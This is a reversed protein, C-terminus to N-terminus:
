AHMATVLPVDHLCVQYDSDFSDDMLPVPWKDNTDMLCSWVYRTLTIQIVNLKVALENEAEFGAFIPCM